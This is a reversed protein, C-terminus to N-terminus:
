NQYLSKYMNYDNRLNGKILTTDLIAHALILVLGTPVTNSAIAM